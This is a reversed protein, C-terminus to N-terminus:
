VFQPFLRIHKLFPTSLWEVIHRIRIKSRTHKHPNHATKDFSTHSISYELLTRYIHTWINMCNAMHRPRYFLRIYKQAPTYRILMELNSNNLGVRFVIDTSKRVFTDEIAEQLATDTCKYPRSHHGFQASM